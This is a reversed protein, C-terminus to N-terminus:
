EPPRDGTHDGSSRSNGGTCHAFKGEELETVGCTALKHFTESRDLTYRIPLVDTTVIKTGYNEATDAAMM